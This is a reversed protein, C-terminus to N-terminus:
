GSHRQAGEQSLTLKQDGRSFYKIPHCAGAQSAVCKQDIRSMLSSKSGPPFFLKKYTYSRALNKSTERGDINKGRSASLFLISTSWESGFWGRNTGDQCPAQVPILTGRLFEHMKKQKKEKKGLKEIAMRGM